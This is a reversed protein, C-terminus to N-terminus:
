NFNSITQMVRDLTNMPRSNSPINLQTKEESEPNHKVKEVESLIEKTPEESLEEKVDESAMEEDKKGYGLEEIMTVIDEVAKRVEALEEKTAYDAAAEVEEVEAEGISAIIGEQEITLKLGDELTYEGVPLAVKEDETVIFIENGAEFAEAEVTTGNELQMTALEVKTEEVQDKALETTEEKTEELNIDQEELNVEIEAANMGLLDKVQKLMETAKM